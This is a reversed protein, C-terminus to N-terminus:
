TMCTAGRIAGNAISETVGLTSKASVVSVKISTINRLFFISRVRILWSM